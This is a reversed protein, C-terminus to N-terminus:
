RVVKKYQKEFESAAEGLNSFNSQELIINVLTGDEENEQPYIQIMDVTLFDLCEGIALEAKACQERTYSSRGVTFVISSKPDLSKLLQILYGIEM